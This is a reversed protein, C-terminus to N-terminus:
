KLLDAHNRSWEWVPALAACLATGAATLTYSKDARKVLLGANQLDQLRVSLVSSSCQGMRRRLELFGLTGPELEWLIRLVWRQGLLETVALVPEDAADARGRSPKAGRASRM